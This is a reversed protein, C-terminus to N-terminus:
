TVGAYEEWLLRKLFRLTEDTNKVHYGAYSNRFRGVFVTLGKNELARFVGEDSVDDGIYIPFFKNKKIRSNTGALIRLVAKAKNWDVPPVVELVM